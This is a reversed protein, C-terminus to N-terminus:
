ALIHVLSELLASFTSNKTIVVKLPLFYAWPRFNNVYGCLNKSEWTLTLLSLDHYIWCCELKHISHHCQGTVTALAIVSFECVVDSVCCEGKGPMPESKNRTEQHFDNEKEALETKLKELVNM